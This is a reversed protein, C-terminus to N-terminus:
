CAIAKPGIDEGAWAAEWSLRISLFSCSTHRRSKHIYKPNDARAVGYSRMTVEVRVETQRRDVLSPGGIPRM